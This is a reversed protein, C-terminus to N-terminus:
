NHFSPNERFHFDFIALFYKKWPFIDVLMCKEIFILIISGHICILSVFSINMMFKLTCIDELIGRVACIKTEVKLIKQPGHGRVGRFIEEKKKENAFELSQSSM